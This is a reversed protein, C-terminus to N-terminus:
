RFHVVGLLALAGIIIFASGALPFSTRYWSEKANLGMRRWFAAASRAARQRNLAFFLGAALLLIGGVANNL